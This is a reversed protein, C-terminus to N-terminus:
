LPASAAPIAKGALTAAHICPGAAANSPILRTLCDEGWYSAYQEFARVTHLATSVCRVIVGSAELPDARGEANLIDFFDTGIKVNGRLGLIRLRHKDILLGSCRIRREITRSNERNFDAFGSLVLAHDEDRGRTMGSVTVGHR